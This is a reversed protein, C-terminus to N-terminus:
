DRKRRLALVLYAVILLGASAFFAEFGPILRSPPSPSPEPTPTQKQDPTSEPTPTQKQGPTPVPTQTQKQSPSSTPGISSKQSSSHTPAIAPTITPTPSIVPEEDRDRSPRPTPTPEPKTPVIQVVNKEKEGAAISFEGLPVGETDLELIFDGNKDATVKIAMDTTLIVSSADDLAAGYVRVNKKGAVDIGKVPLSISITAIGNTAKKPEDLPYKVTMFLIPGLSVRIDKINKARVSFTKKGKPFYIGNFEESYKGESVPLSIVFTSKLSVEENPTAKGSISLTDGQVVSTPNVNLDTVSAGAITVSAIFAFLLLLGICPVVNIHKMNM